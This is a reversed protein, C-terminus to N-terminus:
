EFVPYFTWTGYIVPAATAVCEKVGFKALKSLTNYTAKDGSQLVIDTLKDAFNDYGQIKIAVIKKNQNNM